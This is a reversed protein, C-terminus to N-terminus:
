NHTNQSLHLSLTTGINVHPKDRTFAVAYNRVSNVYRSGGQVGLAQQLPNITSQNRLAHRSTRWLARSFASMTFQLPPASPLCLPHLQSPSITNFDLAADHTKASVFINSDRATPGLEVM